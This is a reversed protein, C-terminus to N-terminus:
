HWYHNRNGNRTLGCWPNRVSKQYVVHVRLAVKFFKRFSVVTLKQVHGILCPLFHMEGNSRLRRTGRRGAPADVSARDAESWPKRWLTRVM